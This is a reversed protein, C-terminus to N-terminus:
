RLLCKERLSLKLLLFDCDWKARLEGRGIHIRAHEDVHTGCVRKTGTQM